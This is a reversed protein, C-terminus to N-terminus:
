KGDTLGDDTKFRPLTSPNEGVPVFRIEGVSFKGILPLGVMELEVLYDKPAELTIEGLKTTGLLQDNESLQIQEEVFRSDGIHLRMRAEQTPGTCVADVEVQYTGPASLHIQWLARQDRNKFGSIQDWENLELGKGNLKATLTSLLTSGDSDQYVVPPLTTPESEPSTVKTEQDISATEIASTTPAVEVPQTRSCGLCLGM